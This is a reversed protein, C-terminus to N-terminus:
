PADPRLPQRPAPATDPPCDIRFAHRARGTRSLESAVAPVSTDPDLDLDSFHFYKASGMHIGTFAHLLTVASVPRPRDCELEDVFSLGDTDFTITRRLQIPGRKVTSLLRRVIRDRIWAGLAPSRFVTVALLRLILYNYPTPLPQLFRTFATRLELTQGTARVVGGVGLMQSIWRQRGTQLLYGADQHVQRSKVRDFVRCVGGKGANVVAYYRPTTVVTIGSERFHRTVEPGECPIVPGSAASGTQAIAAELYSILVPALNQSDVTTPTVVNARALRPRMFAAVSAALPIRSAVIEFGAPFFLSSHRSGYVGGVSGDPHVCWSFFEVARRISALLSDNGTRRWYNALYSIGLSEYGPDPGGYEPYWGDASQMAVIRDIIQAAKTAYADRGTLAAAEHFACAFLAWHNSVFGHTQEHRLAFEAGRRVAETVRERLGSDLAEALLASSKALAYVVGLTPGPDFDNPSFAEFAGNPKQRRVTHALSMGLWDRLNDNGCYPSGPLPHRWLLALPYAAMQMTGIPFDRFKWGWHQRDFSGGTASPRERDLGGLLRAVHPLALDCYTSDATM